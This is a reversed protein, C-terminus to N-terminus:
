SLISCFLETPLSRWHNDAGAAMSDKHFVSLGEIHKRSAKKM